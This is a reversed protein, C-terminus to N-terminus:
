AYALVPPDRHHSDASPELDAGELTIGEGGGVWWCSKMTVTVEYLLMM